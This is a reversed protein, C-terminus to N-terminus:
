CILYVFYCNIRTLHRYSEFSCFRRFFYVWFSFLVPENDSYLATYHPIEWADMRPWNLIKMLLISRVDEFLPSVNLAQLCMSSSSQDESFVFSTTLHEQFYLLLIHNLICLLLARSLFLWTYLNLVPLSLKQLLPKPSLLKYVLYSIMCNSNLFFISPFFLFFSFIMSCQIFVELLFLYSDKKKSKHHWFQLHLEM